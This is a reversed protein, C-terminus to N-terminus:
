SVRMCLLHLSCCYEDHISRPSFSRLLLSDVSYISSFSFIYTHLMCQIYLVCKPGPPDFVANSKNFSYVCVGVDYLM